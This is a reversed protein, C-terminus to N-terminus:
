RPVKVKFQEFRDYNTNFIVEQGNFSQVENKPISYEDKAGDSTIVVNNDNVATVIGIAVSDMTRASKHLITDWDQIGASSKTYSAETGVRDIKRKEILPIYKELDRSSRSGDQTQVDPQETVSASKYRSYEGAKPPHDKKFNDEAEEETINFWLVDGDYGSVLQKPLYFKNKKVRGRETVVFEQGIEQVEGLDDGKEYGRAEKKIIDKWEISNDKWDFNSSETNNSM